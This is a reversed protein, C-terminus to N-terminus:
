AFPAVRIIANRGGLFVNRGFEAAPDDVWAGDVVFRYQHEGPTLMLEKWWRGAGMAVMETADPRWENFTGAVFVSHANPNVYELQVRRHTESAQSHTKHRVLKM